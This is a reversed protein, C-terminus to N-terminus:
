IDHLRDQSLVILVHSEFKSLVTPTSGAMALTSFM